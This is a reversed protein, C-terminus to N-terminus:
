PPGRLPSAVFFSLEAGREVDEIRKFRGDTRENTRRETRGNTQGDTRGDTKRDTQRDTQFWFKTLKEIQGAQILTHGRLPRAVFFSLEAGREVDEIRNIRGDTRGDTQRDSVM